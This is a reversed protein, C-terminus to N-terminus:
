GRQWVPKMTRRGDAPMATAMIKANRLAKVTMVTFVEALAMLPFVKNLVSGRENKKIHMVKVLRADVKMTVAQNKKKRAHVAIFVEEWIRVGINNPYTYPIM